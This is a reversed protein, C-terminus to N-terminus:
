QAEVKDESGLLASVIIAPFHATIVNPFYGPLNV